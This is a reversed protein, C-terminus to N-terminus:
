PLLSPSLLLPSLYDSPGPSLDSRTLPPIPRTDLIVGANRLEYLQIIITDIVFVSLLKLLILTESLPPTILLTCSFIM